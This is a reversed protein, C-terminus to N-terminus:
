AENWRKWYKKINRKGGGLKYLAFTCLFCIVDVICLFLAFCGCLAILMFMNFM